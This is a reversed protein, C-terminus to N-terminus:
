TKIDWKDAEGKLDKAFNEIMFVKSFVTKVSQCMDIVSVLFEEEEKTVGNERAANTAYKIVSDIDMTM